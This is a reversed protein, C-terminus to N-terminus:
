DVEDRLAQETCRTAMMWDENQLSGTWIHNQLSGAVPFLFSQKAGMENDDEDHPQVQFLGTAIKLSRRMCSEKDLGSLM